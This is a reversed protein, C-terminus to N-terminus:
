RSSSSRVKAPPMCRSGPGPLVTNVTSVNVIRGGDPMRRAAEQLSDFVARLNVQMVQEYEEDSLDGLTGTVAVAANNVLINIPGASSEAADWLATVAGPEALDAQVATARGSGVASVGAVVADAASRDTRYAFTVTAGDSTLREVV